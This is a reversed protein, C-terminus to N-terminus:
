VLATGLYTGRTRDFIGIRPKPAPATAAVESRSKAGKQARSPANSRSFFKRIVRASTEAANKTRGPTAQARNELWCPENQPSSRRM